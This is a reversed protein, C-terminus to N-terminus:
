MHVCICLYEGICVYTYAYMHVDMVEVCVCVCVCVCVVGPWKDGCSSIIIITVCIHM